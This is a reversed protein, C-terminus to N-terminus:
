SVSMATHTCVCGFVLMAIFVCQLIQRKKMYVPLPFLSILIHCPKNSLAM